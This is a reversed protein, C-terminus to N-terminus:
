RFKGGNSFMYWMREPLIRPPDASPTVIINSNVSAQHAYAIIVIAIITIMTGKLDM